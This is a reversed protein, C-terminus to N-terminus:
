AWPDAVDDLEWEAYESTEYVALAQKEEDLRQAIMFVVMRQRYIAQDRNLKLGHEAYCKPDGQASCTPCEPCICDAPDMCCVACPQDVGAAEEIM